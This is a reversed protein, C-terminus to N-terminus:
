GLVNIIILIIPSVPPKVGLCFSIEHRVGSMEEVQTQVCVTIIHLGLNILEM